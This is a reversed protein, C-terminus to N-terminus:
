HFELHFVLPRCIALPASLGSRKLTVDTAARIAIRRRARARGCVGGSSAAWSTASFKRAASATIASDGIRRTSSARRRPAGIHRPLAKGDCSNSTGRRPRSALRRQQRGCAGPAGPPGSNGVSRRALPCGGARRRRPEHGAVQSCARTRMTLRSPAPMRRHLPMHRLRPARIPPMLKASVNRAVFSGCHM